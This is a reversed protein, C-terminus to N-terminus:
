FIPEVPDARDTGPDGDGLQGDNNWGWCRVSGDTLVACAHFGGVAVQEADVALAIPQAFFRNDFSGDGLQGHNNTGWCYVDDDAVACSAFEGIGFSTTLNLENGVGSCNVINVKCVPAASASSTAAGSTGRGLQGRSNYGWCNLVSNNAIGCSVGNGGTGIPQALTGNLTTFGAALVPTSVSSPSTVGVGLSGNSGWCKVSSPSARGMTGCSHSYGSWILGYEGATGARVPFVKDAGDGLTSDGLQGYFNFGVCHATNSTDVFCTFGQGTSIDNIDPQVVTSSQMLPTPTPHPDSDTSGISHQGFSNSGWCAATKDSKLACVHGGFAVDASLKTVDTLDPVQTPVDRATTDAVGKMDDGQALQGRYNAGWCMVTRDTMLACTFDYGAALQTVGVCGSPACYPTGSTAACDTEAPAPCVGEACLAPETSVSGNCEAASCEVTPYACTARSEGDCTGACVTGSGACGDRNGHPDGSIPVCAGEAGAVDCAECQGDCLSNCCVGDVCLGSKCDGAGTCADGNEGDGGGPPVLVCTNTATSCTLGEPCLGDVGCAVVGDGHDVDFTCAAAFVLFAIATIRM